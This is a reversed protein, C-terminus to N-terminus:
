NTSEYSWPPPVDVPDLGILDAAVADGPAVIVAPAEGPEDSWAAASLYWRGDPGRRLDHRIRGAAMERAGDAGVRTLSWVAYHMATDGDREVALTAVFPAGYGRASLDRLTDHVQGTSVRYRGARHLPLELGVPIEGPTLGAPAAALNREWRATLADVARDLDYHVPDAAAPLSGALAALLGAAAIRTAFTM